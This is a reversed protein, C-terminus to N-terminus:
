EEDFEFAPAAGTLDIVRRAVRTPRTLVLRRGEAKWRRAGMLLVALGSSDLFSVGSLDLWVDPVDDRALLGLLADRLTPASGIDLEGTIALVCRGAADTLAVRLEPPEARPV